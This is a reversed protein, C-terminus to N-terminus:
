KFFVRTHHAGSEDFVKKTAIIKPETGDDLVVKADAGIATIGAILIDGRATIDQGEQNTILRNRYTIRCTYQTGAAYTPKGYTDRGNVESVTVTNVMMDTFDSIPM